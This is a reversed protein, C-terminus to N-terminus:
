RSRHIADVMEEVAASDGAIIVSNTPFHPAIRVGLPAVWALTTAVDGADAYMLPVVRVIFNSRAIDDARVIWMGEPRAVIAYAHLALASRLLELAHAPTVDAPAIVTIAGKVHAPDYLFTTQTRRAVEAVVVKLDVNDFTFPARPTELAAAPDNTLLLALVSATVLRRCSSRTM